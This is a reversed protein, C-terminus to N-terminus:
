LNYIIFRYLFLNIYNNNNLFISSFNLNIVPVIKVIVKAKAQAKVKAKAIVKVKKQEKLQAKMLVINSKEQLQSNSNLSDFSDENQKVEDINNNKKEEEISDKNKNNENSKNSFLSENNILDKINKDNENDNVEQNEIKISIDNKVNEINQIQENAIEDLKNKKKDKLKNAYDSITKFVSKDTKKLTLPEESFVGKLPQINAKREIIIKKKIDKDLKKENLSDLEFKRDKISIRVNQEIENNDNRIAIKYILDSSLNVGGKPFFKEEFESIKDLLLDNKVKLEANYNKEKVKKNDVIYSLGMQVPSVDYFEIFRIKGKKPIEDGDKGERINQEESESESTLIEEASIELKKEDNEDEEEKKNEEDKNYIDEIRIMNHNINSLTDADIEPDWYNEYNEKNNQRLFTKKKEYNEINILNPILFSAKEKQKFYCEDEEKNSFEKKEESKNSNSEEEQWKMSQGLDNINFGKISKDNQKFDFKPIKINNIQNLLMRTKEIKEKKGEELFLEKSKRGLISYLNLIMRDETNQIFYCESYSNRDDIMLDSLNKFKETPTISKNRDDDSLLHLNNPSVLSFTSDKNMFNILFDKDNREDRTRSVTFKLNSRTTTRKSTSFDGDVQYTPRDRPAVAQNLKTVIAEYKRVEDEEGNRREMTSKTLDKLRAYSKM